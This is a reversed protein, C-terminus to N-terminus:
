WDWELLYTGGQPPDPIHWYAVQGDLLRQPPEAAACYPEAPHQRFLGRAARCPKGPPFLALLTLTETPFVVHTHFWEHEEDMFADVYELENHVTVGCGGPPDLPVRMQYAANLHREVEASRDLYLWKAREAHSLCRGDIRPGATAYHFHLAGVDPAVQRFSYVDTLVVRGEHPAPRWATFDLLKLSSQVVCPPRAPRRLCCDGDGPRRILDSLGIPRKLRRALVTAVASLTGAGTPQGDEIKGITRLGYGAERALQWQTLDAEGRLRSINRGDPLVHARPM